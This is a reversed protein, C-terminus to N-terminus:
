RGGGPAAGLRAAWHALDAKYRVEIRDIGLLAVDMGWRKTQGSIRASLDHRAQEDLEGLDLLDSGAVYRRLEAEVVAGTVSSPSDPACVYRVPDGVTALASVNMRVTVGDKTTAESGLVEVRTSRLPVRVAYHVGPLVVVPGPGKTGVLRGLRFLVLREDAAVFRICTAVLVVVAAAALAVWLLGGTVVADATPGARWVSSTTAM